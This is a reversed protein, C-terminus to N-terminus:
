LENQNFCIVVGKTALAVLVPLLYTLRKGPTSPKLKLLLVLSPKGFKGWGVPLTM